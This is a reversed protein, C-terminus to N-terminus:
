WSFTANQHKILNSDVQLIDSWYDNQHMKGLFQELAYVNRVNTRSM